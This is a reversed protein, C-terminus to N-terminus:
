DLARFHELMLQGIRETQMETTGDAYAALKCESYQRMLGHDDLVGHAGMAQMCVALGKQAANVCFKKAHAAILTADMDNAVMEAGRVVLQNAAELETAVDSLQWRLGQHELLPKGFARRQSCYRLSTQLGAELMAVCMAAVHIRAGNIGQLAIKFAEGPPHILDDDPVFCDTLRIGGLGLLTGASMPHPTLREAGTRDIDVLFGAIGRSGSSTQALVLAFDLLQSNVVWAKEGNLVWGGPVRRAQTAIASLDSGAAPETLAFAGVYQGSLMRPLYRERQSPTGFRAIRTAVSQINNLSFACSFSVRAIEQAARVKAFFSQEKGGLDQPTQLGIMGLDAWQLVIERSLSGKAAPSTVYRGLVEQAFESVAAIDTREDLTLRASLQEYFPTSVM